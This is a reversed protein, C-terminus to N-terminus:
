SSRRILDYRSNIHNEHSQYSAQTITRNIHNDHSQYSSRITLIIITHNVHQLQNHNTHHDRLQYLWRTDWIFAASMCTQLDLPRQLSMDPNPNPNCNTRRHSDCSAIHYTHCIHYTHYAHYTSFCFSRCKTPGRPPFHIFVCSAFGLFDSKSFPKLDCKSVTVVSKASLKRFIAAKKQHEIKSLHLSRFYLKPGLSM